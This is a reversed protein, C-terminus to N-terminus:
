NLRPTWTLGGALRTGRFPSPAIGAFFAPELIIGIGRSGLELSLHVDVVLGKDSPGQLIGGRGGVQLAGGFWGERSRLGLWFFEANGTIPAPTVEAGVEIPLGSSRLFLVSLLYTAGGQYASTRGAALAIRVRPDPAGQTEQARGHNPAALVLMGAAFVLWVLRSPIPPAVTRMRQRM